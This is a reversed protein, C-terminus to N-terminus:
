RNHPNVIELIVQTPTITTNLTGDHNSFKTPDLANRNPIIIQFSNNTGTVSNGNVSPNNAPIAQGFDIKSLDLPENKPLNLEKKILNDRAIQGESRYPLITASGTLLKNDQNILEHHQTELMLAENHREQEQKQQNALLKNNEQLAPSSGIPKVNMKRKDPTENVPKKKKVIITSDKFYTNTLEDSSLEKDKQQTIDAFVSSTTLTLISICAAHILLPKLNLRDRTLRPM